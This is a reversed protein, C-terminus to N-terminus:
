SALEVIVVRVRGGKEVGRRVILFVDIQSDDLWVGASTLSDSLIKELNMVDRKRKDPMWASVFVAVAGEITQAGYDSVIEAVRQKYDRGPKKLFTRSGHRGYLHNLTPPYPLALDIM